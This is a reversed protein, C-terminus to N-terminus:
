PEYMKINFISSKCPNRNGNLFCCSRALELSNLLILPKSCIYSYYFTSFKTRNM